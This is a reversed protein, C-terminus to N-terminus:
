PTKTCDWTVEYGDQDHRDRKISVSQLVATEFWTEYAKLVPDDPKRYNSSHFDTMEEYEVCKRIYEERKTRDVLYFFQFGGLDSQVQKLYNEQDRPNSKPDIFVAYDMWLTGRCEQFCESIPMGTRSPAQSFNCFVDVLYGDPFYQKMLEDGYIKAEKNWDREEINEYIRDEHYSIHYTKEGDSAELNAYFLEKVPTILGGNGKDTVHLDYHKGYKLYLFDDVDRIIQVDSPEDLHQGSCGCLFLCIVAMLVFLYKTANTRVEARTQQM